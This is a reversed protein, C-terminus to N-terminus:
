RKTVIEGILQKHNILVTCTCSPVRITKKGPKNESTFVRKYLLKKSQNGLNRTYNLVSRPTFNIKEVSNKNYFYLLFDKTIM